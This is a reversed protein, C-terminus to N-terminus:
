APRGDPSTATSRTRPASFAPVFAYLVLLLVGGGASLFHHRGTVNRDEGPAILIATVAAGPTYPYAHKVGPIILLLQQAILLFVM